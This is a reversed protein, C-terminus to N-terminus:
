TRLASNTMNQSWFLLAAGLLLWCFMDLTIFIPILFRISPNSQSLWMSILLAVYGGALALPVFSLAGLAQHSLANAGMIVLGLTLCIVGGIVLGFPGASVAPGTVLAVVVPSIVLVLGILALSFAPASIRSGSARLRLHLGSLGLAVLTLGTLSILLQSTESIEDLWNTWPLFWPMLWVVGGITAAVGSWQVYKYQPRHLVQWLHEAFATKNLDIVITLWLSLFGTLGSERLAQRADDRFVQAMDRGYERRFPAPYLYLLLCYVRNSLTLLKAPSLM